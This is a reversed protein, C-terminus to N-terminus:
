KTIQDCLEMEQMGVGIPKQIIQGLGIKEM